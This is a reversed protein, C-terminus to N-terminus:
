WIKNTINFQPIIIIHEFKMVVIYTEMNPFLLFFPLEKTKERQSPPVLFISFERIFNGDSALAYRFFLPNPPSNRWARPYLLPCGGGDQENLASGRVFTKKEARLLFVPARLDFNFVKQPTALNGFAVAPSAEKNPTRNLFFTRVENM